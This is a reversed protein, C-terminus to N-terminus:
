QCNTGRVPSVVRFCDPLTSGGGGGGRLGTEVDLVGLIRSRQQESAMDAIIGSDAGYSTAILLTTFAQADLAGIANAAEALDPNSAVLTRLAAAAEGVSTVVPTANGNVTVGSQTPINVTTGNVTFSLSGDKVTVSIVQERTGGKGDSVYVTFDTGRVGITANGAKYNIAQPRAKGILGTVARMGGVVLTL